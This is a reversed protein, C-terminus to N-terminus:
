RLTRRLVTLLAVVILMVALIRKRRADRYREYAAAKFYFFGPRAEIVVGARRLRWLRYQAVPTVAGLSVANQPRTAEFIRMRRVMRQEALLSWVALGAIMGVLLQLFAVVTV